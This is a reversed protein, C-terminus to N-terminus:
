WDEYRDEKQGFEGDLLRELHTKDPVFQKVASDRLIQTDVTVYRNADMLHNNIDLPKSEQPKDADFDKYQYSEYERETNPNFGRFVKYVKTRILQQHLSIGYEISKNSCGTIPIGAKQFFAIMDPNASDGIFKTVGFRQMYQKTVALCEDPTHGPKYYEAVQFDDKGDMSLARVVICFPDTYGFDIGAIIHHRSRDVIFPDYYNGYDFDQYVLGAMREFLGNFRMNFMRPDLLERQRDYETKPFYPNDISRFQIIDVDNRKGARFPEYLDRFLFNNLKYPTTSIFIPSEMPAARGMLNIFAQTSILGGEDIWIARCQTIGECSWDNDMSRFYVKPGHHLAFVNEGKNYEGLTSSLRMFWPLTSSNCIKYTPFAVIFSDNKDKHTSMQIRMWTAGAMSKGSQLGAVIAVIRKKSFIAMKQYKHLKIEM